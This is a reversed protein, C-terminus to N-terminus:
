SSEKSRILYTLRLLRNALYMDTDINNLNCLHYCVSFINEGLVGPEFNLDVGLLPSLDDGHLPLFLDLRALWDRWVEWITCSSDDCRM